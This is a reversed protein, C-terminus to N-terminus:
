RGVLNYTSESPTARENRGAGVGVVDIFWTFARNLRTHYFVWSSSTKVNRSGSALHFHKNVETHSRVPVRM